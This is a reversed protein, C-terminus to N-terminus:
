YSWEALRIGHPLAREAIHSRLQPTTGFAAPDKNDALIMDMYRGPFSEPRLKKHVREIDEMADPDLMNILGGDRWYMCLLERQHSSVSKGLLGVADPGTRWASTVGEVVVVTKYARARTGNYLIRQKKFGPMTYYKPLEVDNIARTQWGVLEGEWYIPVIIRNSVLGAAYRPSEPASVCFKVDWHQQLQAPDFGRNWLYLNAPHNPGLETLPVCEGPLTTRLIPEDKHHLVQASNLNIRNRMFPKLSVAFRRMDCQENFCNILHYYGPKGEKNISGYKHNVYLRFRTDNCYPCCIRYEEGGQTLHEIWRTPNAPDRAMRGMYSEGENAIRVEGYASNLSHYLAPNLVTPAMVGPVPITM